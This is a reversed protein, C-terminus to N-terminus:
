KTPKKKRKLLKKCPRLGHVNIKNVREHCTTRFRRVFKFRCREVAPSRLHTRGKTVMRCLLTLLDFRGYFVHILLSYEINEHYQLISKRCHM